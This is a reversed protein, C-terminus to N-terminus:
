ASEGPEVRLLCCGAKGPTWTEGKFAFGARAFLGDDIAGSARCLMVIDQDSRGMQTWTDKMPCRHFQIELREEDCRKVEPSFIDDVCPIGALFDTKLGDLDSPGHREFKRGIDEGLRRTARGILQVAREAGFEDRLVDFLHAYAAARMSFAGKLMELTVETAGNTESM